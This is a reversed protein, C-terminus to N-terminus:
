QEAATVYLVNNCRVLVDGIQETMKDNIWEETLSLHLNM